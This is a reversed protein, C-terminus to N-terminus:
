RPIQRTGSKIRSRDYNITMQKLERTIKQTWASSPEIGYEDKLDLLLIKTEQMTANIQGAICHFIEDKM